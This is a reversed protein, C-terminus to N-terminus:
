ATMCQNPAHSRLEPAGIGLNPVNSGYKNKTKLCKSPATSTFSKEDRHRLFMKAAQQVLTKTEHRGAEHARGTKDTSAGYHHM